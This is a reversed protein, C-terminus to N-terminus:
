QTPARVAATARAAPSPGTGRAVAATRAGVCYAPLAAFRTGAVPAVASASTLVLATAPV